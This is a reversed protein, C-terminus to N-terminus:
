LLFFRVRNGEPVNSLRECNAKEAEKAQMTKKRKANALKMDELKKAYDQEAKRFREQTAELDKNVQTHPFSPLFILM